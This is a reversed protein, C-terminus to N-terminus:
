FEGETDASSETLGSPVLPLPHELAGHHLVFFVTPGQVCYIQATSDGYIYIKKETFM